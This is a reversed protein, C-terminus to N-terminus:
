ICKSACAVGQRWTTNQTNICYRLLQRTPEYSYRLTSLLCKAICQFSLVIGLSSPAAISLGLETNESLWKERWEAIPEHPKNSSHYPVRQGAYVLFCTTIVETFSTLARIAAAYPTFPHRASYWLGGLMVGATWNKGQSVLILM